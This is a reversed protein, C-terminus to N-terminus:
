TLDPEEKVKAAGTGESLGVAGTHDAAHHLLREVRLLLETDAGCAEQLFGHRREPPLDAAANFLEEMRKFQGASM